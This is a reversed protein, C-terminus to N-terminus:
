YGGLKRVMEECATIATDIDPVVVRLAANYIVVRRGLPVDKLVEDDASVLRVPQGSSEGMRGAALRDTAAFEAPSAASTSLGAMRACGAFMSLVLCIVSLCAVYRIRGFIREYLM